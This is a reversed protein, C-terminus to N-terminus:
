FLSRSPRATLRPANAECAKRVNEKHHETNWLKSTIFVDERKRVGSSFIKKFSEGIEKENGYIAACDVHDYGCESLAYRVAEGVKGPPSKWTGLGVVPMLAGTNLTQHLKM